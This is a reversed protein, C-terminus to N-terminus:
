WSGVLIQLQYPHACSSGDVSRVTIEYWGSDDSGTSGGHNLFEFGGFGNDDSSAVLGRYEGDSDELWFLDVAYDGEEPVQYLWVEVDFWSWAGDEVYFVFHDEDGDPHLWPLLLTEYTDTLDGLDDDDSDPVAGEDIIGDCDEDIGDCTEVAEPHRSEDLDDCDLEQDWGDGDDDVPAEEEEELLGTDEFGSDESWDTSVLNSEVCALFLLATTM